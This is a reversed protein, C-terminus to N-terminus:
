FLKDDEFKSQLHILIDATRDLHSNVTLASTVILCMLLKSDERDSHDILVFLEELNNVIDGESKSRERGSSLSEANIQQYSKSQGNGTESGTMGICSSDAPRRDAPDVQLGAQDVSQHVKPPESEGSHEGLQRVKM